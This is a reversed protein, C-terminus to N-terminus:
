RKRGRVAAIFLGILGIGIISFGILGTTRNQTENALYAGAVVLAFAIIFTLKTKM